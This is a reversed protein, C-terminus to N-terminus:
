GRPGPEIGPTPVVIKKQKLCYSFRITNQISTIINKLLTLIKDGKTVDACIIHKPICFYPNRNKFHVMM